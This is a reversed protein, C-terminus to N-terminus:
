GVPLKCPTLVAEGGYRGEARAERDVGVGGSGERGHSRPEYDERVARARRVSGSEPCSFQDRLRTTRRGRRPKPDPCRFAPSQPLVCAPCATEPSPSQARAKM